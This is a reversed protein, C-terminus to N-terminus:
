RANRVTARGGGDGRALTPNRGDTARFFPRQEPKRPRSETRPANQYNRTFMAPVGSKSAKEEDQDPRMWRGRCVSRCLDTGNLFFFVVFFPHLVLVEWSTVWGLVVRAWVRKVESNQHSGTCTLQYSRM